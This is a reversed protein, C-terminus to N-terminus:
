KPPELIMASPAQLWSILLHKSRPLFALVFKSLMNFLLSMVKGVFTWRTMALYDHISALAPSCLFSLASSNISEFQPTPSSEQSDRPSCPSWALWSHINMLLVSVSDSYKPWRLCLASENPFVRIQSLNFAPAPLHPHSTLPYYPPIADSVWHVHTQSLELLHYLVPFGPTSCDMLNCLTTPCSQTVSCCCWPPHLQTTLQARESNGM